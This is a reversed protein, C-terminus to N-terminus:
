SGADSTREVSSLASLYAAVRLSVPNLASHRSLRTAWATLRPNAFGLITKLGFDPDGALASRVQFSVLSHHLKSQWM